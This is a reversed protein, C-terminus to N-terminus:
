SSRESEEVPTSGLNMDEMQNVMDSGKTLIAALFVVVLYLGVIQMVVMILEELRCYDAEL